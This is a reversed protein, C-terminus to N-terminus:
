LSQLHLWSTLFRLKSVGTLGSIYERFVQDPFNTGNLVVSARVNAICLLLCLLSLINLRKM